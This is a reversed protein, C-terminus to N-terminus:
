ANATTVSANGTLQSLAASSRVKVKGPSSDGDTVKREDRVERVAIFVCLLAAHCKCRPDRRQMVCRARALAPPAAAKCSEEGEVEEYPSVPNFAEATARPAPREGGEGSSGSFTVTPEETPRSTTVPKDVPSTAPSTDSVPPPLSVRKRQKPVNFEYDSDDEEDSVRKYIDNLKEFRPGWDNKYDFTETSDTSGGVVM